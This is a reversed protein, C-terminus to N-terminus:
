GVIEVCSCACWGVTGDSAYLRVGPNPADLSVGIVVAVVDARLVSTLGLPIQMEEFLHDDSVWEPWLDIPMRRFRERLVVLDGLKPDM